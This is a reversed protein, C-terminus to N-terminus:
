HWTEGQEASGHPISNKEAWGDVGQWVLLNLTGGGDPDGDRVLAYQQAPQDGSGSFTVSKVAESM